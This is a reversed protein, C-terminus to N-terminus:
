RKKVVAAIILQYCPDHFDLEESSLEEYSIGYLFATATKVNGYVSVEVSDVDTIDEFLRRLSLDTFSWFHGWHLMEYQIIQSIGGVTILATGGSKLIRVMNDAASPLDYIFPLTQTCILCDVSQDTLGEGTAFNGKILNRNQDAQDVHLILSERIRGEGFKQTYTRDGIEMVTGRIEEKHANLFQEIYYRDVPTGRNMGYKDDLPSCPLADLIQQSDPHIEVDKLTDMLKELDSPETKLYLNLDENQYIIERGEFVLQGGTDFLMKEFTNYPKIMPGFRIREKKIGLDLLQRYMDGLAYSLLIVPVAPYQVIISPNLVRIGTEEDIITQEVPDVANDLFAVVEFNDFLANRKRRYVMGRGFLLVKEKREM